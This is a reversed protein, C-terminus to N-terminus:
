GPHRPNKNRPTLINRVDRAGHLVRVIELRDGRIRYVILFQRVKWFRIDEAALDRRLHGIGPTQALKTFADFFEDRIRDAVELNQLDAAYYEWIEALDFRALASLLYHSM